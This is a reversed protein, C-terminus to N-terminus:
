RRENEAAEKAQKILGAGLVVLGISLAVLGPAGFTEAIWEVLDGFGGFVLELVAVLGAFKWKIQSSTALEIKQAAWGRRQGVWKLLEPWAWILLAWGSWRIAAVQPTIEDLRQRAEMVAIIGTGDMLPPAVANGVGAAIGMIIATGTGAAIWKKWTNM